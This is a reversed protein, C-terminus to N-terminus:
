SGYVIRGFCFAENMISNKVNRFREFQYKSCVILDFPMQIDWLSKRGEIAIERLSRETDPVVALLDVDSDQNAKGTAYSGFLYIKEPNISETLRKIIEDILNKTLERM